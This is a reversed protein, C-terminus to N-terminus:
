RTKKNELLNAIDQLVSRATGKTAHILFKITPNNLLEGTIKGTAVYSKIAERPLYEGVQEIIGRTTLYPVRGPNSGTKLLGGAAGGTVDLGVKEGFREMSQRAALNGTNFLQLLKKTAMTVGRAGTESKGFLYKADAIMERQPGYRGRLELLKPYLGGVVEEAKHFMQEVVASTQVGTQTEFKKLARLNELVAESNILSPNKYLKQIETYARQIVGQEGTSNIRASAEGAETLPREFILQGTKDVGIRNDRLIQRFPSIDGYIDKFTNPGITRPYFKTLQTFEKGFQESNETALKGIRERGRLVINNLFSEGTKTGEIAGPTRQLAKALVKEDYGSIKGLFKLFPNKLAEAVKSIVKGGVQFVGEAAASAVGTAAIQPTSFNQRQGLKKEIGQQATEGLAGGIGAGAVAGVPGGLAGITGGLVAGGTPLLEGVFGRGEDGQVTFRTSASSLMDYIQSDPTGKAREDLIFQKPDTM